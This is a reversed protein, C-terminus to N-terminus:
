RRKRSKNKKGYNKKKDKKNDKSKSKNSFKKKKYDERRRQGREDEETIFTVAVGEEGIRGTRGIRHIYSVEKEPMDYNFVHTVGDIDLGRAALDTAVLYQTKLERFQKIAQNRKAQSLDGHLEDSNYGLNNLKKNLDIVRKKTRCFIIAMFPNNEELYNVLTDFKDRPNVHIKEEEINDLKTNSKSTEYKLPSKMYRRTVGKVTNSMTASFLLTQRSRSTKAIITEMDKLFGMNMIEDAEDIVLYDINKLSITGRDIHDLLRGPTGIVIDPQRKLGRIQKNVDEGGYVDLVHLDKVQGIKKTESTIQRALERTPTIILAKIKEEEPNITQIIPLIFALTKGSGTESQGILDHGEIIKPIAMAQIETPQSIRNEELKLVIDESLNLDRFNKM